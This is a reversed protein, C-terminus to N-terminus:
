VIRAPSILVACGVALASCASKEITSLRGSLEGGLQEALLAAPDLYLLFEWPEDEGRGLRWYRRKDRQIRRKRERKFEEGAGSWLALAHQTSWEYLDLVSYDAIRLHLKWDAAQMRVKSVVSDVAFARVEDAKEGLVLLPSAFCSALLVAECVEDGVKLAESVLTRLEEVAKVPYFLQRFPKRNFDRGMLSPPVGIARYRFRKAVWGICEKASEDGPSLYVVGRLNKVLAAYRALM